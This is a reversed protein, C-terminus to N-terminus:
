VWLILAAIIAALIMSDFLAHVALEWPRWTKTYGDVTMKSIRYNLVFIDLTFVSAVVVLLVFM